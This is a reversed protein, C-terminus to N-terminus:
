PNNTSQEYRDAVSSLRSPSSTGARSDRTPGLQAHHFGAIRGRTDNKEHPATSEIATRTSAGARGDSAFSEPGPSTFAFASMAVSSAANAVHHARFPAVVSPAAASSSADATSAVAGPTASALAASSTADSLAIAASATSACRLTAPGFIAFAYSTRLPESGRDVVNALRSM